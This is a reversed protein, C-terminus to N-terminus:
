KDWEGDDGKKNVKNLRREAMSISVTKTKISRMEHIKSKLMVYFLDLEDAQINVKVTDRNKGDRKQGFYAVFQNSNKLQQVYGGTFDKHSKGDPSIDDLLENIERVLESREFNLVEKNFLESDM